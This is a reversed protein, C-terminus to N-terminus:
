PKVRWQKKHREIARKMAVRMPAMYITNGYRDYFIFRAHGPLNLSEVAINGNSFTYTRRTGNDQYELKRVDIKMSPRGQM